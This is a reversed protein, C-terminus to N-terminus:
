RHQRRVGHPRSRNRLRAAAHDAGQEAPRVHHGENQDPGVGYRYAAVRVSVDDQSMIRVLTNPLCPEIAMEDPEVNM